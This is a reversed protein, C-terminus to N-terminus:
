RHSYFGTKRKGGAAKFIKWVCV